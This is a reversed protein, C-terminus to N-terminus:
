LDTSAMCSLTFDVPMAFRTAMQIEGGFLLKTPEVTLVLLELEDQLARFYYNMLNEFRFKWVSPLARNSVVCTHRGM